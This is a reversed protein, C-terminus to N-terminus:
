KLQHLPHIDAYLIMRLFNKILKSPDLKCFNRFDHEGIFKRAAQKMSSIDLNHAVFYYKYSRYLCCFRADFTSHVPAWAVIRIDNPLLRNLIHLYPLEQKSTSSRKKHLNEDVVGLGSDLNTRVRLAIIQSFASVGKDTRGCRTYHSSARDKILRATLFAHFIHKEITEDVNEQVAFGHYHWGIYAIKFATHQQCYQEICFPRQERRKRRKAMLVNHDETLASSCSSASHKVAFPKISSAELEVIRAILDAKEWENYVHNM